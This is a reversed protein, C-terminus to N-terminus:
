DEDSQVFSEVDHLSWGSAKMQQAMAPGCSMVHLADSRSLFPVLYKQAASRVQDVTVNMVKADSSFGEALSSLGMFTCGLGRRLINIPTSVLSQQRFVISARGDIVSDETLYELSRALVAAAHELAELPRSTESINLVIANWHISYSIAAHYALGHGRIEEYLPGETLSLAECAIMLPFFEPDSRLVAAPVIVEVFASEVGRVSIAMKANHHKSHRFPRFLFNSLYTILMRKSGFHQMLSSVLTTMVLDESPCGIQVFVPASTSMYKAIKSLSRVAEEPNSKARRLLPEQVFPSISRFNSSGRSAETLRGALFDCVASGDRLGESIDTHLNHSMSSIRDASFIVTEFLHRCWYEVQSVKTSEVCFYVFLFDPYSSCSFVANGLGVACEFSILDQQLRKVVEQYSMVNNTSPDLRDSSFLLEQFLVLFPRLANPLQTTDFVLRVHVFQTPLTVTQLLVDSFPFRDSVGQLTQGVSPSSNDLNHIWSDCVPAHKEVAAKELNCTATPLAPYPAKLSMSPQTVVEVHPNVLLWKRIADRFVQDGQETTRLLDDYVELVAVHKGIPNQATTKAGGLLEQYLVDTILLDVVTELPNDELTELYKIKERKIVRQMYEIGQSLGNDAIRELISFLRDRLVGPALYNPADEAQGSSSSTSSASAQPSFDDDEEEEGDRDCDDALASGSDSMSSADTTASSRESDSDPQDGNSVGTFILSFSSESFLNFTFDIGSAIPHKCEVFEQMLVEAESGQLYSFLCELVMIERINLFHPGRWAIAVSGTREDPSSFEVTAQQSAQMPSLQTSWPRPHTDVHHVPFDVREISQMVSQKDCQGLVIIACNDVRYYKQHYDRVEQATLSPMDLISGGSDYCYSSEPYLRSRLANELLDAETFQRAEMESFVVGSYANKSRDFSVVETEFNEDTILPNFIHDLFVPLIKELGEASATRIGYSTYDWATYAETGTSLCRTALRDLLGRQPYHKSGLFVLHELTHPLGKNDHPETPIVVNLECLPGPIPCFVLRLNSRKHLYVDIPVGCDASPSFSPLRLSSILDYMNHSMKRVFRRGFRM